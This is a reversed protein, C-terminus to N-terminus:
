RRCLLLKKCNNKVSKGKFFLSLFNLLFGPLKFATSNSCIYSTEPAGFVGLFNIHAM